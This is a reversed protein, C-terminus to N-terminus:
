ARREGIVRPKYILAALAGLLVAQLLGAFFWKVALGLPMPTVVYLVITTVQQFLGMWFGFACGDAISRRRWGTKAWIYLFALACLFQAGLMYLFRTRMEDEPRWLAATAKYDGALWIAHILFDSAFIFVFGALVALALRSPNM